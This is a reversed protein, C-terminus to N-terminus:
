RPQVGCALVARTAEDWAALAVAFATRGRPTIAYVKRARGQVVAQTATLYGGAEFEALAPYVTGESPSCCGHTLTAVARVVGYGHLARGQLVALIFFKSLSMKITGRWYAPDAYDPSPRPDTMVAAYLM